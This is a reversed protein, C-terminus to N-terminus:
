RFVVRKIPPTYNPDKGEITWLEKSIVSIANSFDDDILALFESKPFYEELLKKEHEFNEKINKNEQLDIVQSTQLNALFWMALFKESYKNLIHRSFDEFDKYGSQEFITIILSLVKHLHELPVMSFLM